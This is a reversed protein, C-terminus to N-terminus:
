SNGMQLFTVAPLKAIKLEYVALKALHLVQFPLISIPMPVNKVIVCNCLFNSLNCLLRDQDYVLNGKSPETKHEVPNQKLTGYLDRGDGGDHCLFSEVNDDLVSVDGFHEMDEQVMICHYSFAAAM